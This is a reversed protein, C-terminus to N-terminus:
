PVMCSLEQVTGLSLRRYKDALEISTTEVTGNESVRDETGVIIRKPKILSRYLPATEPLNYQRVWARAQAGKQLYDDYHEYVDRFAAAVDEVCCQYQVGFDGPFDYLAPIEISSPVTRVLGSSCITTQATNDTIIVPIGLAMAERPQISFGEGTALNVYCDIGLFRLLYADANVGGREIVVNTLDSSKIEALLEELAQANQNRWGLRLQVASSNGFAKAFGRVLMPFNKRAICTSFNAFVFPEGKRHKLPASLFDSYDRGLPVCFIPITVGSQKYVPILFKDPVVAADFSTNLIHAWDKSIRSSEFMTYAIRIQNDTKEPLGFRGWFGNSPIEARPPFTLISEYMLVRGPFTIGSVSVMKQISPTLSEFEALPIPETPVFSISTTNELMQMLDTAQKGLGDAARIYGCITLDPRDQESLEGGFVPPYQCLVLGLFLLFGYRVIGDKDAAVM